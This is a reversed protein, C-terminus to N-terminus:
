DAMEKPNLKFAVPGWFGRTIDGKVVRHISPLWRWSLVSVNVFWFTIRGFAFKRGSEEKWTGGYVLFLIVLAALVIAVTPM